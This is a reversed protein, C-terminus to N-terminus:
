FLDDATILCALAVVSATRIAKMWERRDRKSGAKLTIQRSILINRCAGSDDVKSSPLLVEFCHHHKEIKVKYVAGNSLAM